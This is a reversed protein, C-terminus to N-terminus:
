PLPPPELPSLFAGRVYCPKLTRGPLIIFIHEQQCWPLCKVLGPGSPFLDLYFRNLYLSHYVDLHTMAEAWTGVHHTSNNFFRVQMGTFYQWRGM